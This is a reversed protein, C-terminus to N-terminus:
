EDKDAMANEIKFGKISSQDLDAPFIISISHHCFRSVVWDAILNGM